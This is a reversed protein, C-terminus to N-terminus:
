LVTVNGKYLNGAPSRTNNSATASTGGAANVVFGTTNTDFDIANGTFRAAQGWGAVRQHVQFADVIMANGQRNATNDRIIDGNGKVDIFSDASHVGALGTGLFKCREVITATSGEKIDIAEAAVNPGITSGRITIRDTAPDFAGGTSRWKGKDSGIYVGEGFGPTVVGTDHIDCHEVLGDSSGDRFHVGEEGINYIECGTIQAHSARDLMVGKRGTAIKLNKINWHAGTIYLVYHSGTTAGQLIAERAADASEVTIPHAATGDAGAFFYAGADGSLRPSGTYTGPAVVIDDGPQAGRLATILAAASAVHVVRPARELQPSGTPPVVTGSPQPVAGRCALAPLGPSMAVVLAYKACTM